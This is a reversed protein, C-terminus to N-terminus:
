KMQTFIFWSSIVVGLLFVAFLCVIFAPITFSIM